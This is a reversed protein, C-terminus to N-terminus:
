LEQLLNGIDLARAHMLLKGKSDRPWKNKPRDCYIEIGNEDPDKLYLAEHTGHDATGDLLWSSDMLRKLVRALEKRNSVLIAFHYLGTSGRPPPKGNASEWTNLGIHHHYGGASLFAAGSGLKTTIQFGLVKTYFKVARELDAVKLHVHGISAKSDIFETKSKKMRM